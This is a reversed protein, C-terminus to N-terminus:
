WNNGAHGSSAMGSPGGNDSCVVFLTDQWAGTAKFAATINGFAEDVISAMGNYSAYDQSFPSSSSSSPGAAAPKTYLESYKAPVQNPAHMDQMAIYMFLPKACAASLDSGGQSAKCHHTVVRVAEQTYTFCGYTGNLGYAPRSTNWLDVGTCGSDASRDMRQTYHDEDGGLFGLSSDFGRGVPLMWEYLGGLHWKGIQWLPCGVAMILCARPPPPASRPPVPSPPVCGCDGRRRPPPRARACTRVQHTSYGVQKLKAPLMSMGGSVYNTSELVHHPLRGTMM